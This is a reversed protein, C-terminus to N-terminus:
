LLSNNQHLEFINVNGDCFFPKSVIKHLCPYLSMPPAIHGEWFPYCIKRFHDVDLLRDLTPQHKPATWTCVIGPPGLSGISMFRRKASPKSLMCSSHLHHGGGFFFFKGACSVEQYVAEQRGDVRGAGSQLLIPVHHSAPSFSPARCTARAHSGSSAGSSIAQRQCQMCVCSRVGQALSLLRLVTNSPMCQTAHVCRNRWQHAQLPILSSSLATPASAQCIMPPWHTSHSLTSQHQLGLLSSSRATAPWASASTLVHLCSQACVYGSRLWAM